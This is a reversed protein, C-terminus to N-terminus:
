NKCKRLLTFNWIAATIFAGIAIYTLPLNMIVYRGGPILLGAIVSIILPEIHHHNKKYSYWMGWWTIILLALLLPIIIKFSVLFGLGISALFAGVAPICVPCAIGILAALPAGINEKHSM